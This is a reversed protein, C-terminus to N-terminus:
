YGIDCVLANVFLPAALQVVLYRVFERFLLFGSGSLWLVFLLVQQLKINKKKYHFCKERKCWKRQRGSFRLRHPLVRTSRGWEMKVM